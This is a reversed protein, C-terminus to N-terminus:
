LESNEWFSITSVPFVIDCSTSNNFLLALGADILTAVYTIRNSQKKNMIDKRSM